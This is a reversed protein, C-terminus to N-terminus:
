IESHTQKNGWIINPYKNPEDNHNNDNNSNANTKSAHDNAITKIKNPAM